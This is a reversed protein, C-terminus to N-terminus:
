GSCLSVDNDVTVGASTYLSMDPIIAFDEGTSEIGVYRIFAHGATNESSTTYRTFQEKMSPQKGSRKLRACTVGRIFLSLRSLFM